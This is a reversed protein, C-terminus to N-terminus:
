HRRRRRSILHQWQAATRAGCSAFPKATWVEKRKRRIRQGKGMDMHAILYTGASTLSRSPIPRPTKGPNAVVLSIGERNALRSTQRGQVKPEPGNIVFIVRELGIPQATHIECQPPADYNWLV